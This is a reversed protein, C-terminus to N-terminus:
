DIAIENSPDRAAALSSTVNVGLKTSQRDSVGRQRAKASAIV